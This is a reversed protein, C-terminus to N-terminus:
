LSYFFTSIFWTCIIDLHIRQWKANRGPKPVLASVFTNIHSVIGHYM